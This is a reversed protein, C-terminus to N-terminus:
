RIVDTQKCKGMPASHIAVQRRRRQVRFKSRCQPQEHLVCRDPSGVVFVCVFSMMGPLIAVVEARGEVAERADVLDLASETLERTEVAERVDEGVM